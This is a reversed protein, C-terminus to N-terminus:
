PGRRTLQLSTAKTGDYQQTSETGNCITLYTGGVTTFLATSYFGSTKGTLDAAPITTPTAPSTINYVAANTAAFLKNTTGASYSFVSQVALTTSITAKKSAGGRLRCSRRQPFWNELVVATKKKPESLNTATVWGSTPASLLKNMTRTRAPPNVAQRMWAVNMYWADGAM